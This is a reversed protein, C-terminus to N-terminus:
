EGITAGLFLSRTRRPPTTGWLPTVEGIRWPSSAPSQASGACGRLLELSGGPSACAFVLYSRLQKPIYDHKLLAQPLYSM